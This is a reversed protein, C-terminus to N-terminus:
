VQTAKWFYKRFGRTEDVERVRFQMRVVAGIDLTEPDVDTFDVMLRGGGNFEVMGFYAPPDPSFTLSDATWTLVRGATDAMPHPSQSDLADCSANVCYRSRPFQVTACSRCKGGVFGNLMERNRYLTTLATQRDGEARKGLDKAVLGNFTLFKDYASESRRRELARTVASRRPVHSIADTVSLLLADAGQGFGVVLIRDGAKATEFAHVLQLIPHAAGTLGCDASLSDAVAETRIGIQRAVAEPVGRLPCPLIFRDVRDPDLTAEALVRRVARPVIKLYGEDRIWREEWGYDFEHHQGRYHDVFDTSVTTSAALTAIIREHGLTLAAAGDGFLAEEITGTRMRRHETALLLMPGAGSRAVRFANLLASTGARQSGGVDLTALSEPLNLAEAILGANQRDSFPLTTSAVHVAGIATRDADRLADRGAEVAMTVADEDWSCMSRAGQAHAKIAANMWANALAIQRRELRLRPIFAGFGTIGMENM